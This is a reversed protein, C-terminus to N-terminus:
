VYQHDSRGHRVFPVCHEGRGRVAAGPGRHGGDATGTVFGQSQLSVGLGGHPQGINNVNRLFGAHFENVTSAGLIKTDGLTIM